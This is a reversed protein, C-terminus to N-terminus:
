SLAKVLLDTIYNQITTAENAVRMRLKKHLEDDMRIHIKKRYGEIVFEAVNAKIEKFVDKVDM